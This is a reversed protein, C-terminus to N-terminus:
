CITTTTWSPNNMQDGGFSITNVNNVDEIIIDPIGKSGVRLMLNGIFKKAHKQLNTLIVGRNNDFIRFFINNPKPHQSRMIRHRCEPMSSFDRIKDPRILRTFSQPLFHEAEKFSFPFFLPNRSDKGADQVQVLAADAEM